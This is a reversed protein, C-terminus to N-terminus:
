SMVILLLNAASSDIKLEVDFKDNIKLEVSSKDINNVESPRNKIYKQTKDVNLAQLKM